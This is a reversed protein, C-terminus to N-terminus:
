RSTRHHPICPTLFVIVIVFSKPVQPAKANLDNTLRETFGPVLSNGGVIVISNLLAPRIDIDCKEICSLVIEAYSCAEPPGPALNPGTWTVPQSPQPQPPPPPLPPPPCATSGDNPMPTSPTSSEDVSAVAPPPQQKEQQKSPTPPPPRFTSDFFPEMLTFQDDVSLQEQYGDPFEYVIPDYCRDAEEHDYKTEYVKATSMKYQAVDNFLMYHKYTNTIGDPLAKTVFRAKEGVETAEKSKVKFAPTMEIGKLRIQKHCLRTIYDGGFPTRLYSNTLVHGEVVPIATTHHAGSDLVMATPRGCSFSALMADQALYFAPINYREFM